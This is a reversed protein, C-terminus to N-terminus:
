ICLPGIITHNKIHYNIQYTCVPSSFEGNVLLQKALGQIDKMVWSYKCPSLTQVSHEMMVM